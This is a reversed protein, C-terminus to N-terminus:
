GETLIKNFYLLDSLDKDTMVQGKTESLHQYWACIDGRDLDVEYSYPGIQTGDPAIRWSKTRFNLTNNSKKYTWNGNKMKVGTSLLRVKNLLPSSELM